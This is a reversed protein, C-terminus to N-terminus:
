KDPGVDTPFTQRDAMYIRDSVGVFGSLAFSFAAFCAFLLFDADGVRVRRHRGVPTIPSQLWGVLLM